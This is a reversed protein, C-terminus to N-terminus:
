FRILRALLPTNAGTLPAAQVTVSRGAYEINYTRDPQLARGELALDVVLGQPHIIMPAEKGDTATIVVQGPAPLVILPYIGGIARPQARFVMSGSQSSDEASPQVTLPCVVKKRLLLGSVVTSHEAGIIVHGGYIAEEICAGLYALTLKGNAGLDFQNGTSLYDFASPSAVDSSVEEVLAVPEESRAVGSACFGIFLTASVIRIHRIM